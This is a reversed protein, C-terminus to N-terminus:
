RGEETIPWEYWRGDVDSLVSIGWGDPLTEATTRMEYVFQRWTRIYIQSYLRAKGGTLVSYQWRGITKGGDHAGCKRGITELQTVNM